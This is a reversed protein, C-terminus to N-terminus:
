GTRDRASAGGTEEAKGIAVGAGAGGAEAGGEGGETAGRWTLGSAAGGRQVQAFARTTGQPGTERLANCLFSLGSLAPSTPTALLFLLLPSSVGYCGASSYPIFYNYRM